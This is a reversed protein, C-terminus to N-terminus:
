SANSVSASFGTGVPKEALTDFAEKPAVKAQITGLVRPFEFYPTNLAFEVPSRDPPPTKDIMTLMSPGLSGTAKDLVRNFSAAVDESTMERGSHFLVGKRLRVTWRTLDDNPKWETALDAEANGDERLRTLGNYMWFTPPYEDGSNTKHPDLQRVAVIIGITIKGGRKVTQAASEGAALWTLALAVASVVLRIRMLM